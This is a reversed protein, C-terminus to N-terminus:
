KWQADKIYNDVALEIPPEIDGDMDTMRSNTEDLRSVEAKKLTKYRQKLTKARYNHDSPNEIDRVDKLALTKARELQIVKGVAKDYAHKKYWEENDPPYRLKEMDGQAKQFEILERVM